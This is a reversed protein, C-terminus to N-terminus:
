LTSPLVARGSAREAEWWSDFGHALLWEIRDGRWVVKTAEYRPSNGSGLDAAAARVEALDAAVPALERLRGFWAAVRPRGTARIDVGVLRLSPLHPFLAYDAITPVDGCVFEDDLDRELADLIRGLDAHGAELLGPPPLDGRRHTPWGWLSIDHLIADLTRDALRQWHRAKARAAPDRPFVPRDPFRDELYAVIDASEVVVVPGDILVPVEVRPNVQALEALADLALADVSRFALAKHRLVMRVKRAFPSFPNDHLVLASM